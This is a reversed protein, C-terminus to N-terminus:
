SPPCISLPVGTSIWTTKKQYTVQFCSTTGFKIITGDPIDSTGAPLPGQSVAITCSGGIITIDHSIINNGAGRTFCTQIQCGSNGLEQTQCGTTTAFTNTAGFGEIPGTCTQPSSSSDPWKFIADNTGREACSSNITYAIKRATPTTAAVTVSDLQFIGKFAGGVSTGGVGCGNAAPSTAAVGDTCQYAVAVRPNIEANYFVNWSFTCSGASETATPSIDLCVPCGNRTGCQVQPQTPHTQANCAAPSCAALVEGVATLGGIAAAVACILLYKKARM